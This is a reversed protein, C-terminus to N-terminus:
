ARALLLDLITRCSGELHGRSLPGLGDNVARQLGRQQSVAGAQPLGLASIVSDVSVDSRPLRRVVVRIDGCMARLEALVSRAAAVGRVETPVVLLVADCVLLAETAAEDLRRSLDVLVLEAGRGAAGVVAPM